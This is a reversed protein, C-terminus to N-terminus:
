KWSLEYLFSDYKDLEDDSMSDLDANSIGIDDEAWRIWERFTLSHTADKEFQSIKLDLIEKTIKM